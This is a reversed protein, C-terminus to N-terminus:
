LPRAPTTPDSRCQIQRCLNRFLVPPAAIDQWIHSSGSTPRPPSPNPVPNRHVTAVEMKVELPGMAVIVKGAASSGPLPETRLTAAPYLNRIRSQVRHLAEHTLTQFEERSKRPVFVLDLDVSLRSLRVLVCELRNRGQPRFLIRPGVGSM